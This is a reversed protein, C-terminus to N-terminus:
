TQLDHKHGESIILSIIMLFIDNNNINNNYGIKLTMMTLAPSTTLSYNVTRKDGLNSLWTTM